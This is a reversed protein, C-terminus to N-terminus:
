GGVVLQRPQKLVDFAAAWPTVEDVCDLGLTDGNVDTKAPDRPAGVFSTPLDTWHDIRPDGRLLGNDQVM